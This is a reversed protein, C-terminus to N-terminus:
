AWPDDPDVQPAQTPEESSEKSKESKKKGFLKKKEKPAVDVSDTKGGSIIGPTIPSDVEGWSAGQATVSQPKNNVVDSPAYSSGSNASSIPAPEGLGKALQTWSDESTEMQDKLQSFQSEAQSPDINLYVTILASLEYRGAEESAAGKSASVVWYGNPNLPVKVQNSSSDSLSEESAFGMRDQSFTLVGSVEGFPNKPLKTELKFVEASNWDQSMSKESDTNSSPYDFNRDQFLDKQDDVRSIIVKGDAISAKVPVNAIRIDKMRFRAFFYNNLQLLGLPILIGLFALLVRLWFPPEIEQSAFELDAILDMSQTSDPTRTQLIMVGKSVGQASIESELSIELRLSEGQKILVEEGIAFKSGTKKNVISSSFDSFSRKSPDQKINLSKISLLCDGQKPGQIELTGKAPIKTYLDTLKFNAEKLKCLQDPLVLPIEVASKITPLEVGSKTTLDLKLLFSATTSGSYPEISGNWSSDVQNIKLPFTTLKRNQATNDIADVSLEVKSFDTLNAKSGDSNVILGLIEQNSKGATLSVKKSVRPQVGADLFVSACSSSYGSNISWKGVLEKKIPINLISFRELPTDLTWDAPLSQRSVQSGGPISIKWNLSPLLVVADKIGPDMTFSTVGSQCEEFAPKGEVIQMTLKLFREALEDTNNVKILEGQGHSDPIPYEGCIFVGEEINGPEIVGKGLVTPEFLSVQGRNKDNIVQPKLFVGILHIGSERISTILSSQPVGQEGPAIGCLQKISRKLVELDDGVDIGGDTFWIIAQCAEGESKPAESLKKQANRLGAAWDTKQGNDFNKIKESWESADKVNELNAQKWPYEEYKKGNKDQGPSTSDFTTLAFFLKKEQNIRELLLISSAIIEARKGEPDSGPSVNDDAFELSGSSDILFIINVQTSTEKNICAALADFAKDARAPSMPFMLTSLLSLTFAKAFFKKNIFRIVKSMSM